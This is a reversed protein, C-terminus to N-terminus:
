GDKKLWYCLLNSYWVSCPVEVLIARKRSMLNRSGGVHIDLKPCKGKIIDMKSFEVM